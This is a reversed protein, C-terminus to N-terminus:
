LRFTTPEFGVGAGLKVLHGSTDRLTKLTGLQENGAAKLMAVLQGIIDGLSVTPSKFGSKQADPQANADEACVWPLKAMEARMGLGARDTYIMATLNADSHGLVDQAARQNVGNDAGWTQWTKRLAHLHVVRGLGDKHQIGARKLHKRCLDYDALRGQLARATVSVGDPRAVRLLEVLEAKLDVRRRKDSKTTGERLLVYPSDGDLHLDDWVVAYAEAWRCGTYLLFQYGLSYKGAVGLLQAFEKQTYARSERVQKGRVDPKALKALPNKELRESEVLWNLFACASVQYEKKTKQSCTLTPLWGQFTDPRIDQVGRWGIERGMLRLRTTTNYVHKVSCGQSRLHKDYEAVLTLIPKVATECRSDSPAWGDQVRQAQLAIEHIRKQAIERSPTGLARWERMGSKELTFYGRYNVIVKKGGIVKSIPYFRTHFVKNM